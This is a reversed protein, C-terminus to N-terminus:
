YFTDIINTFKFLGTLNRIIRSKDPGLFIATTVAFGVLAGIGAGLAMYFGVPMLSVVFVAPLALDGIGVLAFGEKPKVKNLKKNCSSFQAPLVAAFIVGRALLGQMMTVMHGTWYVAIIDYVALIIALMLVTLYPLSLGLNTSIGAVGLVILLNQVFVNPLFYRLLIVGLAVIVAIWAPLFIDALFWVGSFMALYFFIAFIVKGRVTRLLYLIIATTFLLVFIFYWLEFAPEGPIGAIIKDKLIFAAVGTMVIVLSFLILSSCFLFIQRKQMIIFMINLFFM